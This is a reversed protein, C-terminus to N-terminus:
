FIFDTVDLNANGGVIDFVLDTAAEYTGNKNTDVYITDTGFKGVANGAFSTGDVPAASFATIAAKGTTIGFASIDIKDENASQFGNYKDRLSATSVNSANFVITDKTGNVLFEVSDAQKTGTFKVGATSAIFSMSTVAGNLGSADFTRVANSTSIYLNGTGTLTVTDYSGYLTIASNSVLGLDVKEIGADLFITSTANKVSLSVADSTGTVDADKFDFTTANNNDVSIKTGLSINNITLPKLSQTDTLELIGASKSFDITGGVGGTQTIYIKEVNSITPTLSIGSPLTIFMSDTGGGGDIKSASSLTLIKSNITDDNATSKFSPNAQLPSVEDSAATLNITVGPVSPASGLSLVAADADAPTVVPSTATVATLFAAGKAAATTGSYAAIESPMDLAKTFLDAAALKKNVLTLDAGVAGDLINIAITNISQNGTALQNVFFAVGTAEGVRNFLSQYISQVIQTTNQGTFRNLYEPQSSLDGIGTLNAGNGTVGNFFSLGVPDAPRGFLALYVGQISAM